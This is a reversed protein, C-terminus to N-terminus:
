CLYSGVQCQWKSTWFWRVNLVDVISEQIRGGEFHRAEGERNINNSLANKRSSVDSSKHKHKISFASERM